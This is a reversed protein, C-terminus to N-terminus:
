YDAIIDFDAPALGTAEAAAARVAEPIEGITAARVSLEPMELAKIVFYEDSASSIYINLQVGSGGAGRNIM